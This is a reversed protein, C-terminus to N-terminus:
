PVYYIEQPGIDSAVGTSSALYARRGLARDIMPTIGGVLAGTDLYLKLRLIASELGSIQRSMANIADVTAKQSNNVAITVESIRNKVGAMDLSAPLGSLDVRMMEPLSFGGPQMSLPYDGLMQRITEPNLNSFDFTPVIKIEFASENNLQEQFTGLTEKLNAVIDVDEGTDPDKLAFAESLKAGMDPFTIGEMDTALGQWSGMLGGKGDEGYMAKELGGTLEDLNFGGSDLGSALQSLLDADVTFPSGETGSLQLGNQVMEHVITAISTDGLQLAKVIADVVPTADFKPLKPDILGDQIADYLKQVITLGDFQIGTEPKNLDGLGTMIQNLYKVLTGISQKNGPDALDKLRDMATGMSWGTNGWSAFLESLKTGLEQFAMLRTYIDSTPDSLDALAKMHDEQELFRVYEYIGAGLKGMAEAFGDLRSPEISSSQKSLNQILTMMRTIGSTKETDFIKSAESLQDMVKVTSATKQETTGGGFLAAFFGGIAGGIAAIVQAGDNLVRVVEDVNGGGLLDSVGGVIGIIGGFGAIMIGMGAIIAVATKATGAISMGKNGSMKDITAMVLSVGAIMTTIGALTTLIDMGELEPAMQKAEGFAKIIPPLLAMAASVMGVSKLAGILSTIVRETPTENLAKALDTQSKTKETLTSVIKGMVAMLIGLAVAASWMKTQDITTLLALAASIALMGVGISMFKTAISETKIKALNRNNLATFIQELVAILGIIVAGAVAWEGDSANGNLLNAIHKLIDSVFGFMGKLVDGLNVFFSSIEPPIVVGNVATMIRGIFDGIAGIIRELFSIPKEIDNVEKAAEGAAQGEDVATFLGVVANYVDRFFNAVANDGGNWWTTLAGTEGFISEWTSVIKEYIGKFFTVIPM